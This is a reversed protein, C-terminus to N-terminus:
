GVSDDRQGATEEKKEEAMVELFAKVIMPDFETRIGQRIFEVAKEPTFAKRYPRDSTVAEYHDAVALIRAGLNIKKGSLGAPYGKGDYREHHQLVIPIVEAYASIPELIRAGLQPHKNMIEKERATLKGPKDLIEPPIGLKGIDHLLGGRHLTDIEEQSLKLKQGIKIALKTVGESHGATWSSKADIARALARLTGWNLESLDLILRANSFAVAVQDKLQRAQALDEDTLSPPKIYGLSIIAALEEKLFIPLILFSRLGQEYFPALYAPPERDLKLSLSEPNDRLDQLEKPTLEAVEVLRGKRLDSDGVYVKAQSSSSSDVLIVGVANCPFVERMRSLVTGVIKEINLASLIARDIEAMTTLARFQRGLQSAMTNFSSALDEFEDHSKVKIRSDFDRRAIRHTGEKLKELPVLSRQIQSISLFLVVWLSLLIVPLFIARFAPIPKLVLAKEESLVLKWSEDEYFFNGELFILRLGALYKERDGKWEFIGFSEQSIKSLAQKSFTLPSELSSYLINNKEDLIFLETKFLLFDEFGLGMTWLYESEVEAQLIGYEPRAPNVVMSMFIRAPPKLRSEVSIVTEGSQIGKIEESTLQHVNQISGFVSMTKGSPTLLVVSKFREELQSLMDESFITNVAGSAVKISSSVTKMEAKLFMLRKMIDDGMTKTTERLREQSQENLQGTVHSFSLIALAVIPILACSIFLIFIRRAVKSRLFTKELKM